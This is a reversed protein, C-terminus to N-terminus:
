LIIKYNRLMIEIEMLYKKNIQNNHYYDSNADRIMIYSCPAFTLTGNLLNNLINTLDLIDLHTHQVFYFNHKDNKLQKWITDLTNELKQKDCILLSDTIAYKTEKLASGRLEKIWNDFPRCTNIIMNKKGYHYNANIFSNIYFKLQKKCDNNINLEIHEKDIFQYFSTDNDIIALIANSAIEVYNLCNILSIM